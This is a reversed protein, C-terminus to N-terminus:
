RQRWGCAVQNGIRGQGVVQEGLIQGAQQAQQFMRVQVQLVLDLDGQM